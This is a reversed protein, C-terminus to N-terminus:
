RRGGIPLPPLVGGRSRYKKLLHKVHVQDRKYNLTLSYMVLNVGLRFSMEREREGGHSMPYLWGGLSDRSWAGPLDNQSYIVMSRDDRDVSLLQSTAQVRGYPRDLLYFSRYVAHERPVTSLPTEPFIRDALTRFSGDFGGTGTGSGLSDVLLFGGSTLYRRLREVSADSPQRFASDGFLVVFPHEFLAPDDVQVTPAAMDADISTRKLVEWVLRATAGPRVDGPGGPLSLLAMRFLSSPGIASALSSVAGGALLGASTALFRRRSGNMPMTM